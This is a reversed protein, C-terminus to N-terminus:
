KVLVKKGNVIYIGKATIANVKRGTLDYIVQEVNEVKVDEIATAVEVEEVRFASTFNENYYADGAGDFVGASHKVVFPGFMDVNKGNDYGRYGNIRVLGFLDANTAAVSGGALIKTVNLKTVALTGDSELGTESENDLWSKGGITPYALYYADDSTKFQYNYDGDIVSCVFKASEPVEAPEVLTLTGDVANLVYKAEGGYMATFTYAKGAEPLIIDTAGYFKKIASQLAVGADATPAAEAAEIADKLDARPAEAPYGVAKPTYDLLEKADAILAVTAEDIGPEPEDGGIKELVWKAAKDYPADCFPYNIGGVEEVKFYNSGNMIYYEGNGADVLKLASKTGDNWADVNWQRCVIYYGTESVIYVNGDGADEFAFKQDGSEEDLAVVQVSGIPGTSHDENYGAVFLYAGTEVNKIRFLEVDREIRIIFDVQAGGNTRIQKDGMPDLNNWDIKIRMRYDGAAIDAPLFFHPLGKSENFDEDYYTDSNAYQPSSTNGWIDTPTTYDDPTYYNYTVLEGGTTGDANPVQDFSGDLAYDIYGYAHMWQGSWNFDTFSIRAGPETVLVQTTRDAYIPSFNDEQINDVTLSNNGDTITFGVFRRNGNTSEGEVYDYELANEDIFRATFEIDETVEISYPNDTSVVKGDVLWGAFKYGADPVAKLVATKGDWVLASGEQDNVTATGGETANVTVTYQVEEPFGVLTGTHGNGSIDEVSVGEINTFDYAAILGETDAGVTATMDAVVEDAALAKNYFRVDDIHGIAFNAPVAEQGDVNTYRAGVLIDKKSPMGNTSMGTKTEKLVGDIYIYSTTGDLVWTLHAWKAPEVGTAWAFSNGWPKGDYSLNVSFSQSASNGGYLDFGTTGSNATGEYARNNVFGINRGSQYEPLLVKCSVTFGAEGGAAINFVENNAITMYRSGNLDLVGEALPVDPVKGDLLWDLTFNYYALQFGDAGQLNSDWKGEEVIIGITGDELVQLTSYASYGSYIQRKIEWTEGNDASLYVTVNERTSSSGPLSHLLYHVGGHTYSVVDGNCAPDMLNTNLAAKEWTVGGDTSKAMLRNGKNRNKISMLLDGNSLEVIKAEDGNSYAANESVKWTAGHDDSYVAYNSMSGGWSNDNRAAVVFMLRGAHDGKKLQVASGSGAFMGIWAGRSGYIANYISESIDVPKTWTVGNDSSESQYIRLPYASNSAWLGVCNTGYNENGVFVSVIKGTAEDLVAAADGYTNGAAKDGQAITVMDGWTKGGDTSRKAVVSIINPLDGLNAGRKDAIAVLSGDAAQVLVPIRYYQSGDEGMEFVPYRTLEDQAFSTAFSAVFMFLLLLAKKM